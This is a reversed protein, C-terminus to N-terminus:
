HIMSPMFFPAVLEIMVSVQRHRAPPQDDEFSGLAGALRRLNTQQCLAESRRADWADSDALGSASGNPVVNPLNQQVRLLFDGGRRFRKEEHRRAGLQDRALNQGGEYFAGRNQDISKEKRGVSILNVTAAQRFGLDAGRISQGRTAQNRIQSQEDIHRGGFAQTAGISAPRAVPHLARIVIKVLTDGTGEAFERIWTPLVGMRLASGDLQYIAGAVLRDHM